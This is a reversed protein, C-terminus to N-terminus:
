QTITIQEILVMVILNLKSGSDTLTKPSLESSLKLEKTLWESSSDSSNSIMSPISMMSM